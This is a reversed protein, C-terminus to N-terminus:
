LAYPSRFLRQPDAAARIRRLRALHPGHCRALLAPDPELYNVYRGASWAALARHGRDIWAYADRVTAADSAAPMVLWQMMTRAGR